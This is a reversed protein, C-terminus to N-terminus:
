PACPDQGPRRGVSFPRCGRGLLDIRHPSGTANSSFQVSGARPGFGIPRFAVDAVCSAQPALTAGCQSTVLYDPGAQLPGLTAEVAGVNTVTIRQTGSARGISRDGFGIVTPSFEIVPIPRAQVRAVLSISRSGGPANSVIALSGSFEGIATPNFTLLLTCAAGPALNLGCTGASLAFPGNTVSATFTLVANGTNRLELSQTLTSVTGLAVSGFDITSPLTLGASQTGTGTLAASAPPANPVGFQAKLSGAVSGSQVPGFTVNATCSSRPGISSGCNSSAVAFPGTTSVGTFPLARDSNNSITFTHEASAQGVPVSGYDVAGPAVGYPVRDVTALLTIVRTGGSANSDITLQGTTNGYIMPDFSMSAVCSADPALSPPCNHSLQFPSSVAISNFDVNGNGTNTITLSQQLANSALMAAGFDIGTPLALIGQTSQVTATLAVTHPSTPANTNVTLTGNFSGAALPNHKVLISCSAGAALSSPCSHSAAFPPSAFISSIALAVSGSNQLTVPATMEPAGVVATGLDASAPLLVTSTGGNGKVTASMSPAGTLSVPVTVQGMVQGNVTPTFAASITCNGNAPISGACNNGVISFPSAATPSGIPIANSSANSLTFVAPASPTNLAQSGFDHMSPAITYPAIGSGQLGVTVTNGNTVSMTLSGSQPTTATPSYSATINCSAGPALTTGCTTSQVSFPASTTPAGITAPPNGPSNSVIITTTAPSGFQVSGFSHSTPSVTLLVPVGTGTFTLVRATASTNDCVYLNTTQTGTTMPHFTIGTIKCAPTQPITTGYPTAPACTTSCSFDGSTCISVGTGPCSPPSGSVMSDIMYPGTGTSTFNVEQAPSTAGVVVNGFNITTPLVSAAPVLPMVPASFESTGYPGTATATVNTRSGTLTRSGSAVGSANTTVTVEDVYTQGAHVGAQANSYFHLTFQGNFPVDNIFTGAPISQLTFNVVTNGSDEVASTILPFNQRNNPGGSGDAPDNDIPTPGGYFDLNINKGANSHISGRRITNGVSGSAVYIGDVQNHAIVNDELVNNASAGLLKAVKPSLDTASMAPGNPEFYCDTGDLFIGKGNNALAGLGDATTGIKNGSVTSEVLGNFSIGGFSGNSSVQNGTITLERSCGIAAGGFANAIGAGGAADTGIKNGSVTFLKVNFFDLGFDSNGSLVNNQVTGGVTDEVVLGTSNPIGTTGAANTGIFNGSITVGPSSYVSIGAGGNGSAVNGSITIPFGDTSMHLGDEGNGIDLTGDVSTGFKNNTVSIDTIQLIAGGYTNGSIVNGDFPGGYSFFIEIGYQNPLAATGAANTGIKNGEVVLSTVDWLTAGTFNNGSIVNGRLTLSPLGFTEIGTGNPAATAGDATGVYNNEIIVSGVVPGGGGNIDIGWDANNYAFNRDAANPGGITSGDYIHFGTANGHVKNGQADLRGCLGLGSGGYNFNRIELGTVKLATTNSSNNELGCAGQFLGSGDIATGDGVIAVNNCNISPLPSSVNIVFPGGSFNITHPAGACNANVQNIANRLTVAGVPVEVSDSSTNVTFTAGLAGQAGLACAVAAILPSYRFRPAPALRTSTRM